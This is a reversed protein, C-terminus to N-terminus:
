QSIVIKRGQYEKTVLWYVLNQLGYLNYDLLLIRCFEWICIKFCIGIELKRGEKSKNFWNKKPRITCNVVFIVLIAQLIKTWWFTLVVSIYAVPIIQKVSSFHRIRTLNGYRLVNNRATRSTLRVLDIQMRSFARKRPWPQCRRATDRTSSALRREPAGKIIASICNMLGGLPNM